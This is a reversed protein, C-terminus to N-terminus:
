AEARHSSGKRLRHRATAGFGWHVNREIEVARLHEYMLAARVLDRVGSPEPMIRFPRCMLSDRSKRLQESSGCSWCAVFAVPRQNDRVLLLRGVVQKFHHPAIM